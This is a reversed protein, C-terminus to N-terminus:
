LGSEQKMWDNLLTIDGADTVSGNARLGLAYVDGAIHWQGSALYGPVFWGVQPDLISVNTTINFQLPEIAGTAILAHLSDRDTITEAVGDVIVTNLTLNSTSQVTSTDGDIASIAWPSGSQAGFFIMSNDTTKLSLFLSFSPGDLGAFNGLDIDGINLSDDIGDFELYYFGSVDQRLTPRRTSVSQTAHNGNGSLDKIYGVPSGVAADTTGDSNQKLNSLDQFSYYDGNEGAAFLSALTISSSSSAQSFFFFM